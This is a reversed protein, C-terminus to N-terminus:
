IELYRRLNKIYFVNISHVGIVLFRSRLFSVSFLFSVTFALGNKIDAFSVFRQFSKSSVKMQTKTIVELINHPIFILRNEVNFSM